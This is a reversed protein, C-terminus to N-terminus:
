RTVVIPSSQKPGIPIDMIVFSEGFLSKPIISEPCIHPVITILKAIGRIRENSDDVLSKNNILTNLIIM